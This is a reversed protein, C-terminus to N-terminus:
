NILNFFYESAQSMMRRWVEDHLCAERYNKAVMKVYNSVTAVWASPHVKENGMILNNGSLLAGIALETKKNPLVGNTCVTFLSLFMPAYDALVNVM